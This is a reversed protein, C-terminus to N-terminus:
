VSLRIKNEHVTNIYTSTGTTSGSTGAEIVDFNQSKSLVPMQDNPITNEKTVEISTDVNAVVKHRSLQVSTASCAQDLFWWKFM